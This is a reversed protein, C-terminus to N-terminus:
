NKQASGFVDTVKHIYVKKMEGITHKLFYRPDIISPQEALAKRATATFAIWGDSATNVKCVAMKAAKKVQEEPIGQAEELKGGYENIMKVYQPLINSAGHLVIPFGPLRKAVEELIDYRLEPITGDPLARVKVVGHCTGISIALSDMGSRRVFEEVQAPNTYMSAAHDKAARKRRARSCAWSVRSPSAGSTRM